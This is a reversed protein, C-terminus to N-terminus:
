KNFNDLCKNVKKLSEKMKNVIEFLQDVINKSKVIFKDIDTSKWKYDTIGPNIDNEMDQIKKKVLPEEVSLM